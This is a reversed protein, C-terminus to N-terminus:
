LVQPHCNASWQSKRSILIMIIVEGNLGLTSTSIQLAPSQAAEAPSYIFLRVGSAGTWGTGTIAVTAVAGCIPSCGVGTGGAVGAGSTVAVRGRVGALVASTFDVKVVACISW